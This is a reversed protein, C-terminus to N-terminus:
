RYRENSKAKKARNRRAQVIDNVASLALLLFLSSLIFKFTQSQSFKELVDVYYLVKSLEVDNLALLDVKGYYVGEYLVQVTGIKQDTVIPADISEPLDYNLILKSADYDNPVLGRVDNATKVSVYDNQSSLRVSVTAMPELKGILLASFFNNYGWEFMEKTRYTTMNENTSLDRQCDFILSILHVDDKEAYAVLCNGAASTYGTKVGNAYKYYRPDSVRFILNNTTYVMKEPNKNTEQITKQATNVITLFTEDKLANKTIISMDRATTYHNEDHLGNPNTFNTNYAGLQVARYNMMQVFTEVDGAVHIALANSAENASALMMCYLMDIVSMEEGSVIGASSSGYVINWFADDTVTVMEDLECEELVIMATLIKTTSAPYIMEDINSEALINGTHMDFLMYSKAVIEPFAEFDDTAFINTCFINLIVFLTFFKKANKKYKRM